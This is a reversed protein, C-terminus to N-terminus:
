QEILHINLNNGQESISNVKYKKDRPFLVEKEKTVSGFKHLYVGSRGDITVMVIRREKGSVSFRSSVLRESVVNKDLSTSMFAKDSLISGESISNKFIKYDSENFTMGRYTTANVKPANKLFSDLIPITEMNVDIIGDIESDTIGKRLNDNITKYGFDTYGNIAAIEALSPNHKEMQEKMESETISKKDSAAGRIADGADGATWQGGTETGKPDRPQNENYGM